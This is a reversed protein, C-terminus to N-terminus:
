RKVRTKPSVAAASGGAARGRRGSKAAELKLRAEERGQRRLARRFAARVKGALSLQRPRTQRGAAAAPSGAPADAGQTRRGGQRSQRVRHERHGRNFGRRLQLAQGSSTERGSPVEVARGLGEGGGFALGAVGSHGAHAESGWAPGADSLLDADEEQFDTLFPTGKGRHAKSYRYAEHVQAEPLRGLFHALCYVAADRRTAMQTCYVYDKALMQPEEAPQHPPPLESTIRVAREVMAEPLEALLSGLCTVGEQVNGAEDVCSNFVTSDHVAAAHEDAWDFAPHEEGLEVAKDVVTPPVHALLDSVCFVAGDREEAHNLCSQLKLAIIKPDGVVQQSPSVEKAVELARKELPRPLVTLLQGMCWVGQDVTAAAAVCASFRASARVIDHKNRKFDIPKLSHEAPEPQLDVLALPAELTVARTADEWSSRVSVTVMCLLALLSVAAVGSWAGGRRM